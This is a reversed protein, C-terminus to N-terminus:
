GEKRPAMLAFFRKPTVILLVSPPAREAALESATRWDIQSAGVDALHSHWTGVDFLTQGSALHRAEIAGQLGETGLVFLEASRKSDAPADLLDVVTVTRLRASALGIMVGGTEAHNNAKAEARIHDVVRRSIRLSWGISGEIQVIEFPPVPHRSWRTSAGHQECIGTVILGDSSGSLVASDIELSLGATMVSLQADKMPMTLSGCGQGIQVASLGDAPDFLLHAACPDDLTAYLEAVLDSHTPNYTKGGMLLFAGRGRGFLAAEFLRTKPLGNAALDLAERVALSATSNVAIGTGRPIIQKQEAVLGSVLDGRYITPSLGFGALEQGLAEAKNRGVGVPGLAHRAMNHPRLSSQDSVSVISYGARAAHLGLKSGVSGCGLLAISPGAVTDSLSRLLSPSLAQYHMAPGVPEDEEQAFLSTRNPNARIELVYPLLEIDSTTGILHVPRRVCLMVAIPVPANLVLGSFCRELNSFFTTLGRACGLEGARKRLDGLTRISEPMYSGSVFPKGDPQKDPWIVGIVTNGGAFDGTSGRFTFSQDDASRILPTTEGKSTAWVEVGTGITAGESGQRFFRARWAVWGGKKTVTSRALEADCEVVHNLARRLMPEWGQNADILGGVAAKRLWAALQGILHFIGYEVLGFQLFYEDQDGDVLCPLPREAFPMLHPFNRSFDERLYARPSQWPYDDPIELEVPECTRVGTASVGDVKMHLPMEVNIEVRVRSRGNLPELVAGGVCEPHARAVRLLHEAPSDAVAEVPIM